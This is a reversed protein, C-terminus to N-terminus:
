YNFQFVIILGSVVNGVILFCLKKDLAVGRLSKFKPSFYVAQRSFQLFMESINNNPERPQSLKQCLLITLEAEKKTRDCALLM